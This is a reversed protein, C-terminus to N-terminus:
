SEGHMGTTESWRRQRPSPAPRTMGARESWPKPARPRMRRGGGLPPRRPHPSGRRRRTSAVTTSIWTLSEDHAPRGAARGHQSRHEGLLRVLGGRRGRGGIAWSPAGRAARPRCRSVPPPGRGVVRRSFGAGDGADSGVGRPLLVSSIAHGDSFVGRATWERAQDAYHSAQRFDGTPVLSEIMMHLADSREVEIAHARGRVGALLDLRERAHEVALGYKGETWALAAVADLASSLVPIDETQRALELGARAPGAMEENCPHAM